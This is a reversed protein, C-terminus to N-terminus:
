RHLQLLLCLGFHGLALYNVGVYFCGARRTYDTLVCVCVCPSLALSAINKNKLLPLRASYDVGTRETGAGATVGKVAHCDAGVCVCLCYLVWGTTPLASSWLYFWIWILINIQVYAWRPASLKVLWVCTAKTNHTSSGQCPKSTCRLPVLYHNINNVGTSKRRLSTLPGM